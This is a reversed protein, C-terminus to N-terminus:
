TGERTRSAEFAELFARDKARGSAEKSALLKELRGVRVPTGAVEFTTADESLSAFDFGAIATMLDLQVGERHRAAVCAGRELIRRLVLEDRLDVFPEGGAEFVFGLEALTEFARALNEVTPALLADVDLTMFAQAGTKAYFNIGGVGVLVFRVGGRALAALARAYGSASSSM